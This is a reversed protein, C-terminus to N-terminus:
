AAGGILGNVVTGLMERQVRTLPSGARLNLHQYIAGAHAAVELDPLLVRFIGPLYGYAATTHDVIEKTPGVATEPSVSKIRPSTTM